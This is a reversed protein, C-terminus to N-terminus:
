YGGILTNASGYMEEWKEPTLRPTHWTEEYYDESPVIRNSVYQVGGDDLPRVVVEHTYVKSIGAYPFVVNVTLMITGDGNETHRVVESYPYEPHEAEYLGRPKYEYTEDEPFFVTKSQLTDSDINIFRKIVNEFEDKPIRYVAGVGLNEDMGYPVQRGNVRPYFLDFLDYFDLDGFDEENWDALFLNNRAYGVPLIYQRNLERCTEDLPLVRFAAYEKAESMTLVYLQESFCSGSFMLYGDETYKWREAPFSATFVEKMDGGQYKYYSTAVGVEGSETQFDYKVIGDLTGELDKIKILTLKGEEKADVRRCFELVQEPETMDIQNKGDVAAYGSDGFRKVISCFTELDDMRGEEDANKFLEYGTEIIPDVEKQAEQGSKAAESGGKTSGTEAPSTDACGSIGLSLILLFYKIKREQKHGGKRKNRM